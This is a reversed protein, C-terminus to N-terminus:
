ENRAIHCASNLKVFAQSLNLQQKSIFAEYILALQTRVSGVLESSKFGMTYVSIFDM